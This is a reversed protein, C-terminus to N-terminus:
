DVVDDSFFKQKSIKWFSEKLLIKLFKKDSDGYGYFNKKVPKYSKLFNVFKEFVIYSKLLQEYNM